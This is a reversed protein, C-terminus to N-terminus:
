SIKILIVELESSVNCDSTTDIACTGSVRRSGSNEFDLCSTAGVSDVDTTPGRVPEWDGDEDEDDDDNFDVADSYLDQLTVDQNHRAKKQLAVYNFDFM